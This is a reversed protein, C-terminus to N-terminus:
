LDPSKAINNNNDYVNFYSLKKLFEAGRIIQCRAKVSNHFIARNKPLSQWVTIINSNLMIINICQEGTPHQLQAVAIQLTYLVRLQLDRDNGVYKKILFARKCFLEDEFQANAGSGIM